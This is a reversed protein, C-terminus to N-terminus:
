PPPVADLTAPDEVGWSDPGYCGTSVALRFEGAPDDFIAVPQAFGDVVYSASRRGSEEFVLEDVLTRREKVLDYTADSTLGDVSVHVLVGSSYMEFPECRVTVVSVDTTATDGFLSGIENKAVLDAVELEAVLTELEGVRHGFDEPSRGCAAVLVVSVLILSRWVRNM